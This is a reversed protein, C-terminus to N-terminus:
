DITRPIDLPLRTLLEYNLQDSFKGFSSVSIQNEKEGGILVVPDGVYVESFNTINVALCNMNVTGIVGARTGKILVRGTNSLTRSYGYGYGVPILAICTDEHALYSTGYGIFKGKEVNKISM